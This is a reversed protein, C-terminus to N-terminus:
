DIEFYKCHLCMVRWNPHRKYEDPLVSEKLMHEACDQVVMCASADIAKSVLPCLPKDPYENARNSM